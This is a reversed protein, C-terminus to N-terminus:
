HIPTIKRIQHGEHDAVYIAGYGDIALSIPDNFRAEDDVGDVSGEDSDVVLLHGDAQVVLGMPLNFEAATGKRDAAGAV